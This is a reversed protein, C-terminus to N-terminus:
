ITIVELAGIGDITVHDKMTIPYRVLRFKVLPTQTKYKKFEEEAIDKRFCYQSLDYAPWVLDYQGKGEEKQIHYSYKVTNRSQQNGMYKKYYLVM